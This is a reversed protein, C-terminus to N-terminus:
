PWRTRPRSEWRPRARARVVRSGLLPRDDHRALAGGAAPLMAKALAVPGGELGPARRPQVASPRQADDSAGAACARRAGVRRASLSYLSALFVAAGSCTAALELTM